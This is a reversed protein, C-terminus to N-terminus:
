SLDLQDYTTRDFRSLIAPEEGPKYGLVVSLRARAVAMSLLRCAYDFRDEGVPYNGEPLGKNDIGLIFCHDFDLGKASHLTSLAVNVESKPWESNRTLEVYEIGASELQQELFTFWGKPHLFAVSEKTLDINNKIYDIVWSVQQKFLGRLIIPKINGAPELSQIATGDDDLNVCKILSAAFRAIEPTNRHNEELRHSNEPRVNLGIESWTFGGVYIRQATDLVFCVATEPETQKLVARLRNATFDQTEDVIVIDYSHYEGSIMSNEIDHWDTVRNTRKWSLYPKLVLNLIKTRIPNDVRPNNGRGVRTCDLYSDLEDEPFRGLVYEAEAQLFDFPLGIEQHRFACINRLESGSYVQPSGFTQNAWHGFTDVTVDVNGAPTNSSVLEDIYGRLTKNYTLVLARVPEDSEERKRRNLVWLVLLKLKLIATTTKGSGASGRIIEVGPRVRKIIKLQESSPNINILSKM